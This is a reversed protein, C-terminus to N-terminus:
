EGGRAEWGGMRKVWGSRSKSFMFDKVDHNCSCPLEVWHWVVRKEFPRLPCFPEPAGMLGWIESASSGKWSFVSVFVSSSVSHNLSQITLLRLTMLPLCPPRCSGLTEYAVAYLVYKLTNIKLIFDIFIQTNFCLILFPFYHIIFGNM